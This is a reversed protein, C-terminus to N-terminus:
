RLPRPSSNPCSFAIREFSQSKPFINWCLRRNRQDSWDSSLSRPQSHRSERIGRMKVMPQSAGISKSPTSAGQRCILALTSTNVSWKLLRGHLLSARNTQVDRLPYELHVPRFPGAVHREAFAQHSVLQEREKRGLWWARHRQLGTATSM